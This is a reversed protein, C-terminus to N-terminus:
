DRADTGLKRSVRELENFADSTAIDLLYGPVPDTGEDLGVEKLVIAVEERLIRICEDKDMERALRESLAALRPEFATRVREATVEEPTM